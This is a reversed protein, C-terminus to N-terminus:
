VEKYIESALPHLVSCMQRATICFYGDDWVAEKLIAYQANIETTPAFGKEQLSNIITGCVAIIMSKDTETISLIDCQSIIDLAATMKSCEM